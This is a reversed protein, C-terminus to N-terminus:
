SSLALHHQKLPDNSPQQQLCIAVFIPSPVYPKGLHFAPPFREMIACSLYPVTRFLQSFPFHALEFIEFIPSDYRVETSNVKKTLAVKSTVRNSAMRRTNEPHARATAFVFVTSSGRGRPTIFALPALTLSLPGIGWVPLIAIFYFSASWQLLTSVKESVSSNRLARFPSVSHFWILKLSSLNSILPEAFDIRGTNAVGSINSEFRCELKSHKLILTMAFSSAFDRRAGSDSGYSTCTCSYGCISVFSLANGTASFHKGARKREEPNTRKGQKPLVTKYASVMLFFVLFLYLRPGLIEENDRPPWLLRSVLLHPSLWVTPNPRGWIEVIILFLLELFVDPEPAGNCATENSRGTMRM